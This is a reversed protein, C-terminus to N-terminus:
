ARARKRTTLRAAQWHGAVGITSTAQLGAVQVAEKVDSGSMHGSRGPKPTALWVAGGDALMALADLLGDALDGDDDRWFVLVADVVDAADDLVVEEVAAALADLFGQDCDDDWGVVQVVADGPLGLLEVATAREGDRAPSTAVETRGGDRTEPM